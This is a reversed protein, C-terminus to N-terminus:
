WIFNFKDVTWVKPDDSGLPNILMVPEAKKNKRRRPTIKQQKGECAKEEEKDESVPQQDQSTGLMANQEELVRSKM